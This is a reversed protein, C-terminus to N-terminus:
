PLYMDRLGLVDPLAPVPICAPHTGTGFYCSAQPEACAPNGSHIEDACACECCRRCSRDNPSCKDSCRITCANVTATCQSACQANVVDPDQIAPLSVSGSAWCSAPNAGLCAGGVVLGYSVQRPTQCGVVTTTGNCDIAKHWHNQFNALAHQASWSYGLSGDPQPVTDLNGNDISSFSGSAPARCTSPAIYWYVDIPTTNLESTFWNSPMEGTQINTTSANM